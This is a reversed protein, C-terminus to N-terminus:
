LIDAGSTREEGGPEFPFNRPLIDKCERPLNAEKRLPDPTLGDSREKTSPDERQKQTTTTTPRHIRSQMISLACRGTCSISVGKGCHTDPRVLTMRRGRSIGMRRVSHWTGAVSRHRWRWRRWDTVDSSVGCTAPYVRPSTVPLDGTRSEVLTPCPDMKKLGLGIWDM